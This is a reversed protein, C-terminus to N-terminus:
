ITRIRDASRRVSDLDSATEIAYDLNRLAQLLDLMLFSAENLAVDRGQTARVNEIYAMSRLYPREWALLDAVTPKVPAATETKM